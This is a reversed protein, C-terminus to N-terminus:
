SRCRVLRQPLTVPVRTGVRIVDVHDIAALQEVFWRLKAVPLTLPDGGSLIVDRIEPTQRIYDIMRVEDHSPADWGDRDM